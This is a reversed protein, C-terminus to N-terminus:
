AGILRSQITIEGTLTRHVPCREAIELLRARQADDLPGRVTIAREFRDVMGTSSECNACDRAHVRGHRVDVTVGALPWRKKDAYMRLTMATCTGLAAGLLDYPTPGTDTGGVAVPEDAALTHPGVTVRQALGAGGEVRVVGPEIATAM